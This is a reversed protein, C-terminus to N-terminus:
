LFSLPSSVGGSIYVVFTIIISDIFVQSAAVRVLKKSHRVLPIYILSLFFVLGALTYFTTTSTNLFAGHERLQAIIATTLLIGAVIVRFLMLWALKEHLSKQAETDTSNILLYKNM